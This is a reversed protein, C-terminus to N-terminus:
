IVVCEGLRGTLRTLGWASYSLYISVVFMVDTAREELDVIVKNLEWLDEQTRIEDPPKTAAIFSKGFREEGTTVLLGGFHGLRQRVEAV